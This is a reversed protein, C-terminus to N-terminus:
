GRCRTEDGGMKRLAEDLDIGDIGAGAFGRSALDGSDMAENGRSRAEEPVWREIMEHMKQIDIPKTLFDDFGNELFMERMGSIANATLAVIPINKFRGGMARIAATAQVGDMEPMMHDMLVLGYEEKSLMSIADKGSACTRIDMNYPSLLGEAVMLNIPIDDVILVRFDPATFSVEPTEERATSKKELAGLPAYDACAQSLTATFVSGRGYESSVAIDGGMARCLSRTISLGLGAGEINKNRNMDVRTFDQFLSSIDERRIGVGTDAVSFTLLVADTGIMDCRASFKISGSETYKVANSLLNLLIQRIRTEDGTMHSPISPDIDTVLEVPKEMLRFRIITMADNLLSATDYRAATIQINGAEIKSFDLIDNIIALLNAGSQKIDRIYGLAEPRGYDREALESMGIIANMPTRIEHSMRALFSTKSRSEEDSHLKAASLRMLIYCLGLMLVFGLASLVAATYYVDRYYSRVPTVVGVHWNNFMRKFSVIAAVGGVDTIVMSLIGHDRMLADYIARYGGSIDQMQRSIYAEDPHGVVVMYQNLIMGYSGDSLTLSGVYDKFWTTNMDIAIIGYYEGSNGYVNRVATIVVEGTRADIYPETYAIVASDGSNRVAADFWPRTQPIYDETPNLGIGDIFEGRIYGYAGYFGFLWSNERRMWRTSNVLYETLGDQSAGGDLMNQVIHTLNNMTAETESLGTKINAEALSLASEVGRTLHRRVIASLSIYSVLVMLLFAAFVFILQSYNIKIVRKWEM